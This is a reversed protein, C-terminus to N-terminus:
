KCYEEELYSVEVYDSGGDRSMRYIFIYRGCCEKEEVGIKNKKKVSIFM